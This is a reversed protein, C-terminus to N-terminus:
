DFKASTVDAIGQVVAQLRNIEVVREGMRGDEVEIQAALANAKQDINEVFTAARGIMVMRTDLQDMTWRQIAETQAQSMDAFTAM